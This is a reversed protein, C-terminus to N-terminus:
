QLIIIRSIKGTARRAQNKEYMKYLAQYTKNSERQKRPASIYRETIEKFVGYFEFAWRFLDLVGATNDEAGERIEYAKKAILDSVKYEGLNKRLEDSDNKLWKM